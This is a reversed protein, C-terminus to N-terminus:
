LNPLRTGDASCFNLNPAAYVRGCKSCNRTRLEDTIVEGNEDLRLNVPVRTLLLKGTVPKRFAFLPPFTNRPLTNLRM